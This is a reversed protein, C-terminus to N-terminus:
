FDCRKERPHSKSTMIWLITRQAVTAKRDLRTSKGWKRMGRSRLTTRTSWSSGGSSTETWRNCGDQSLPRKDRCRSERGRREIMLPLTRRLGIQRIRSTLPSRIQITSELMTWSSTSAVSTREQEWRISFTKERTANTFWTKPAQKSYSYKFSVYTAFRMFSKQYALLVTSSLNSSVRQERTKPLAGSAIDPKNM